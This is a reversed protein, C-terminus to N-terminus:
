TSEKTVELVSATTEASQKTIQSVLEYLAKVLEEKDGIARVMDIVEFLTILRIGNYKAYLTSLTTKVVTRAFLDEPKLIYRDYMNPSVQTRKAVYRAANLCRRIEQEHM